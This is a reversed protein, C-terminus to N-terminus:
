GNDILHLDVARMDGEAMVDDHRRSRKKQRQIQTEAVVDDEIVPHGEIEAGPYEGDNGTRHEPRHPHISADPAICREIIQHQDGFRRGERNQDEQDDHEDGGPQLIQRSGQREDVPEDQHREQACGSEDVPNCLIAPELQAEIRGGVAPYGHQQGAGAVAGLHEDAGHRPWVCVVPHDADHGPRGSPHASIDVVDRPGAGCRSITASSVKLPSCSLPRRSSAPSNPM